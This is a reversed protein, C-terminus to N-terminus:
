WDRLERLYNFARVGLEGLGGGDDWRMMVGGDREKKNM